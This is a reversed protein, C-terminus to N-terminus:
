SAPDVEPEDPHEQPHFDADPNNGNNGGEIVKFKHEKKQQGLLAPKYVPGPADEAGEAHPFLDHACHVKGDSIIKPPEMVELAEIYKSILFDRSDELEHELRGLKKHIFDIVSTAANPACAKLEEYRWPMLGTSVVLVCSARVTDSQNWSLEPWLQKWDKGAIKENHAASPLMAVRVRCLFLVGHEPHAVVLAKIALASHERTILILYDLSNETGKLM